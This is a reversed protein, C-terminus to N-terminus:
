ESTVRGDNAFDADAGAAPLVTASETAAPNREHRVSALFLRQEDPTNVFEVCIPVTPDIGVLLEGKGGYPSVSNPKRQNCLVAIRALVARVVSKRMPVEICTTPGGERFCVRCRGAQWDLQIGQECSIALLDDVLGLIGRTPTTLASRVLDPFTSLSNM